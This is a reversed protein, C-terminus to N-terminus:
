CQVDGATLEPIAFTDFTNAHRLAENAKRVASNCCKNMNEGTTFVIIMPRSTTGCEVILVSFM